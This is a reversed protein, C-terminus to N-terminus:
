KKIPTAKDVKKLWDAPLVGNNKEKLENTLQWMQESIKRNDEEAEKRAEMNKAEDAAKMRVLTEEIAEKLKNMQAQYAAIDVKKEKGATADKGPKQGAAKPAKPEPAAKVKDAPEDSEPTNQTAKDGEAAADEVKIIKQVESKDFGIIGGSVMFKIQNGEHWYQRTTYQGGDKLHIIYEALCLAPLMAVIMACLTLMFLKKM